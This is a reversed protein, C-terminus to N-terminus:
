GFIGRWARCVLDSGAAKIGQDVRFLLNRDDPGAVRLGNPFCTPLQEEGSKESDGGQPPGVILGVPLEYVREFRGNGSSDAERLRSTMQPLQHREKVLRLKLCPVRLEATAAIKTDPETATTGSDMAGLVFGEFLVHVTKYDPVSDTWSSHSATNKGEARKDGIGFRACDYVFNKLVRPLTAARKWVRAEHTPVVNERAWKEEKERQDEYSKYYGPTNAAERVEKPLPLSTTQTLLHAIQAPSKGSGNFSRDVCYAVRAEGAAAEVSQEGFDPFQGKGTTTYDGMALDYELLQNACFRGCHVTLRTQQPLKAQLDKNENLLKVDYEAMGSLM